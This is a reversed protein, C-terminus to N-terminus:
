ERWTKLRAIEARFVNGKSRQMDNYAETDTRSLNQPEDTYRSAEDWEGLRIADNNRRRGGLRQIRSKANAYGKNGSGM